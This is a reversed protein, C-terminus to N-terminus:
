FQIRTAPSRGRTEGTRVNQFRDDSTFNATTIDTGDPLTMHTEVDSWIRRQEPDYHLEETEIRRGDAIVVLVVNGRGVMAQTNQDYVGTLATLHATQRGSSDYMELDVGRLHMVSSDSYMFATDSKLEAARVGDSTSSFQVDIMVQDAPLETFDGEPATSSGACGSVAAAIVPAGIRRLLDRM